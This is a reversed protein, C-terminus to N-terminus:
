PCSAAVPSGPPNLDLDLNRSAEVGRRGDGAELLPLEERVHLAAARWQGCAKHAGAELAPRPRVPAALPPSKPKLGRSLNCWVELALTSGPNVFRNRLLPTSVELLSSEGSFCPCGNILWPNILIPHGGEMERRELSRKRSFRRFGPSISGAKRIHISPIWKAGSQLGRSVLAPQGKRQPIMLCGLKQPPALLPNGGDM